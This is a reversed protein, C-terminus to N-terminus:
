NREFLSKPVFLFILYGNMQSRIRAREMVKSAFNLQGEVSKLNIKKEKKYTEDIIKSSILKTGCIEGNNILAEIVTRNFRKKQQYGLSRLSREVNKFTVLTRNNRNIEEESFVLKVRRKWKQMWLYFFAKIEPIVEEGKDLLWDCFRINIKEEDINWKVILYNKLDECAIEYMKGEINFADFNPHLDQLVKKVLEQLFM